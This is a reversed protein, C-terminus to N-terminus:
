LQQVGFTCWRRLGTDYGKTLFDLRILSFKEELVRRGIMKIEWDRKRELSTTQFLQHKQTNQQIAIKTVNTSSSGTPFNPNKPLSYAPVHSRTFLLCRTEQHHHTVRGRSVAAGGRKEQGSGM